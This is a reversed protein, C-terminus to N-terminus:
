RLILGFFVHAAQSDGEGLSSYRASVSNKAFMCTLQQQLLSLYPFQYMVAFFQGNDLNICACLQVIVHKHTYRVVPSGHLLAHFLAPLLFLLGWMLKFDTRTKTENHWKSLELLVFDTQITAGGIVMLWACNHSVAVTSMSHQYRERVSPPMNKVQLLHCM